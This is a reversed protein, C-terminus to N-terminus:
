LVQWFKKGGVSVVQYPINYIKKDAGRQSLRLIYGVNVSRCDYQRGSSDAIKSLSDKVEVLSDDFTRRDRRNIM